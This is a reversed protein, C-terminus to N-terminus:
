ITENIRKKVLNLYNKIKDIDIDSYKEVMKKYNDVREDKTFIKDSYYRPLRKKFGEKDVFFHNGLKHYNYNEDLELYKLGLGKSRLTFPYNEKKCDKPMINKKLFYLTVYNINHEAVNDVYVFGKNWVSELFNKISMLKSGESDCKFDFNFLMMHYHPRLTKKGYEGVLYYRFNYSNRLKKFFLQVDRKNLMKLNEDNYTLTVWFSPIFSKLEEKIRIRWEQSKTYMCADCKGCPVKIKRVESKM